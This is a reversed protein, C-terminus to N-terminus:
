MPNMLKIDILYKDTLKSRRWISNRFLMRNIHKLRKNMLNTITKCKRIFLFLLFDYMNKVWKLTMGINVKSIV